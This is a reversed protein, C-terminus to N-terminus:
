EADFRVLLHPKGFLEIAGSRIEDSSVSWDGLSLVAHGRSSEELLFSQLEGMPINLEQRLESIEVNSYGLRSMLRQYAALVHQRDIIYAREPSAPQSRAEIYNSEVKRLKLLDNLKEAHVFYFSRNRRLKLLRTEKVLWDVAEDVKRRIEGECGKQLEKKILLEITDERTSKRSLATKEVRECARELPNFHEILVYCTRTPSGLHAVRRETLLERLAQAAKGKTDKVGLRAKTLGAPGAERLKSLMKEKQSEVTEGRM